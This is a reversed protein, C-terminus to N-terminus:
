KKGFVQVVYIKTKSKNLAFGFGTFNYESNKINKFHSPSKVWLSKMKEALVESDNTEKSITTFLINEAVKSYENKSFFNVRDLIKKTKSNENQNHDLVEKSAIYEAHNSAAKDLNVDRKLKLCKNEVRVVNIKDFLIVDIKDLDINQQFGLFLLVLVGFSKM